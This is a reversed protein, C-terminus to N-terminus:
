SASAAATSNPRSHRSRTSRAPTPMAHMASANLVLWRTEPARVARRAGARHFHEANLFMVSAEYLFVIIEPSLVADPERRLSILTDREPHRGMIRYQPRSTRCCSIRRPDADGRRVRGAARRGLGRGSTAILAFMAARAPRDPCAAPLGPSRVPRDGGLAPHALAAEAAPGAAQHSARRRARDRRSRVRRGARTRGGSSLAVATRSDAGTVAFGQFLGAAINAAGFGALERNPQSPAGIKQGFSRATLIGSAFSVVLLGAVDM